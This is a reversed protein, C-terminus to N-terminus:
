PRVALRPIVGRLRGLLGKRPHAANEAALEAGAVNVQLDGGNLVVEYNVILM